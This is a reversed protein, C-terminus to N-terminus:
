IADWASSSNAKLAGERLEAILGNKIGSKLLIDDSAGPIVPTPYLASAIEEPSMTTVTPHPDLLAKRQELESPSEGHKYYGSVWVLFIRAGEGPPLSPDSWPNYSEAPPHM